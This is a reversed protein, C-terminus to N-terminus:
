QPCSLSQSIALWHGRNSPRSQTSLSMKAVNNTAINNM